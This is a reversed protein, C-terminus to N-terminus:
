LKTLIFQVNAKLLFFASDNVHKGHQADLENLFANLVGTAAQNDGRQLDALANKLKQDLSNAAGHNDIWGLSAAQEKLSILRQILLAPQLQSDPLVQASLTQGQFANIYWPQFGPFLHKIADPAAESNNFTKGAKQNIFKLFEDESAPPV